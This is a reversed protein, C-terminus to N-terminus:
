WRKQASTSMAVANSVNAFRNGVTCGGAPEQGALWVAGPRDRSAGPGAQRRVREAVHDAYEGGQVASGSPVQAVLCQAYQGIFTEHRPGTSRVPGKGPRFSEDAVPGSQGACRRSM